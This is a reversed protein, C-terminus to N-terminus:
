CIPFLFPPPRLSHTPFSFPFPSPNFLLHRCPLLAFMYSVLFYLLSLYGASSSSFLSPLPFHLVPLFSSTLTPISVSDLYLPVCSGPFLCVQSVSGVSHVLSVPFRPNCPSPSTRPVCLWPFSRPSVTSTLLLFTYSTALVPFCPSPLYLFAHSHSRSDTHPQHRPPVTAHEAGERSRLSCM